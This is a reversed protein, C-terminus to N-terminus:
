QLIMQFGNFIISFMSPFVDGPLPRPAGSRPFYAGSRGPSAYLPDLSAGLPDLLSKPRGWFIKERGLRFKLEGPPGGFGGFIQFIPALLQNLREACEATGM